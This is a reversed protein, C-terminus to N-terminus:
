SDGQGALDIAVVRFRSSLLLMVKRCAYWSEPFGAFAASVAPLTGHIM